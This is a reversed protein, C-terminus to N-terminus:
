FSSTPVELSETFSCQLLFVSELNGAYGPKTHCLRTWPCSWLPNQLHRSGRIEM